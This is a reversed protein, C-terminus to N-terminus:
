NISTRFVSGCDTGAFLYGKKANIELCLTAPVSSDSYLPLWQKGRDPSFYVGNKTAAYLKQSAKPHIKIRFVRSSQKSLSSIKQWSSGFDLSKYLNSDTLVYIINRSIPDVAIQNVFDNKKRFTNKGLEQWTTGGNSSKYVVGKNGGAANYGGMYIIDENIPDLALAYVKGIVSNVPYYSWQLGSNKTKFLSIKDNSSINDWGAAYLTEGNKVSVL